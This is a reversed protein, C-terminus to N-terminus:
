TANSAEFLKLTHDVVVAAFERNHTCSVINMGGPSNAEIIKYIGGEDIMMDFRLYELNLAKRAAVTLQQLEKTPKFAIQIRGERTDSKFGGTGIRAVPFIQDGVVGVTLVMGLSFDIYEQALLTGLSRAALVRHCADTLDNVTACYETGEGNSGDTSKVVFPEGIKLKIMTKVDNNLDAPLELTRACPVNNEKFMRFAHDKSSALIHSVLSHPKFSPWTEIIKVSQCAHFNKYVLYLSRDMFFQHEQEYSPLLPLCSYGEQAILEFKLVPVRIGAAPIILDPPSYIEHTVCHRIQNNSDVRLDYIDICSVSFNKRELAARVSAVNYAFPQSEAYLVWATKM